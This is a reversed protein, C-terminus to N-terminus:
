EEAIPTLDAVGLRLNPHITQPLQWLVLALAYTLPIAALRMASHIMISLAWVAFAATMARGLGPENAFYRKLVMWTLILIALIGFLGHEALLRTFETHAALSRGFYAENFEAAQGVGVGVIPNDRFVQLDIQALELRGTTDLDSFRQSLTGNTFDDLFPYIGIFLLVVFLAFIALFATRARRNRLLHLGFVAVALVFSYIGGRSFTLLAQGLMLLTGVLIVFKAGRAQPLLILLMTGVLAGLGMMNSVQNPGYSGSTIWNSAAVFELTDLSRVTYYIALFTIGVIPALIALLIRNTTGLNVPRAWLYLAMMAIALHGALNFSLPDRAEGLDIELVTLVAGPLLVVLLLIPLIARVRRNQRNLRWESIIAVFMIAVLAYKAYEWVLHAQSMRWLVECAAIYAVASLVQSSRGTLAARLAYLMIIVAHITSFWPSLEMLMALPVHLLLFIIIRVNISNALDRAPNGTLVAASGATSTETSTPSLSM